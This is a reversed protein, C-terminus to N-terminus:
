ELYYELMVVSVYVMQDVLGVVSMEVKLDVMQDVMSTGMSVVTKDDLSIEQYDVMEDAMLVVTEDDLQVAMSAVLQLVWKSVMEVVQLFDSLDVLWFVMLVVKLLAMLVAM